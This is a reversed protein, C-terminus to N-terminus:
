SDVIWLGLGNAMPRYVGIQDVNSTGNWNNVVPTDGPLGYSLAKATAPDYAFKGAMDLVWTCAGAGSQPCRFVGLKTRGDGNWDGVDAGGGFSYLVTQHGATDVKYVVGANAAGGHNTTGYLNGASDRIVGAFPFSGKPPHPAFSHLVIETTQARAPAIGIVALACALWLLSLDKGRPIASFPFGDQKTKAM